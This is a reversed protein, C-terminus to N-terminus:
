VYVWKFPNWEVWVLFTEAQYSFAKSNHENHQM